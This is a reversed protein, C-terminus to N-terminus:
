TMGTSLARELYEHIQATVAARTANETQCRLRARAANSMPKAPPRDSEPETHVSLLAATNSGGVRRRARASIRIIPKKERPVTDPARAVVKAAHISLPSNAGRGSLICTM